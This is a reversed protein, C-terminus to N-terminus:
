CRRSRAARGSMVLSTVVRDPGPVGMRTADGVVGLAPIHLGGLQPRYDGPNIARCQLATEGPRMQRIVDELAGRARPWRRYQKRVAAVLGPTRLRGATLLM